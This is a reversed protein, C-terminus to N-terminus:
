IIKVSEYLTSDLHANYATDLVYGLLTQATCKKIKVNSVRKM